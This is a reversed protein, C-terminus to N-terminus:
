QSYAEDMAELVSQVDGQGTLLGQAGTALAGYVSPNPWGQNPLPAYDGSELLDRVPEYTPNLNEGPGTIPVGGQVETVREANESMWNLFDLAAEKQAEEADANISLVYNPSALLYPDGDAPPFARTDLELGPTANALENAATGPLFASLSTGQTIGQTIGDFGAGPAGPQFCGAENMEVITELTDQWGESEAFSADGAALQDNFDPTEAYVRTASIAMAMLGPNPPVAGAIVAMSKGQDALSQCAELYADFDEPYEVGAEEAAGVNWTVGVPILSTPQAYIEGDIGFQSESGEPVLSAAEEGLPELYGAEALPIVSSSQGSGPAFMMLTPANGGQLQTRMTLGYSDPPLPNTEIEVGIEESYEEALILWPNEAGGSANEFAFTFSDAAGGSGSASANDDGGGCAALTLAGLAPAAALVGLRRLRGHGQQTM